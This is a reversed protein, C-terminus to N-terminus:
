LKFTLKRIPMILYNSTFNGAWLTLLSWVKCLKVFVQGIKIRFTIKDMIQDIIQNYM